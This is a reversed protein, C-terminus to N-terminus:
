KHVTALHRQLARITKFQNNGCVHCSYPDTYLHFSEIHRTLDCKKILYKQCVACRWYKAGRADQECITQEDIFAAVRAQEVYVLGTWAM